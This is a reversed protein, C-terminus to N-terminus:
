IMETDESFTHDYIIGVNTLNERLVVDRIVGLMVSSPPVVNVSTNSTTTADYHSRDVSALHTIGMADALSRVTASVFRSSLDVILSVGGGIRSCVARM